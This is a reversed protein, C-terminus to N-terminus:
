ATNGPFTIPSIPQVPVQLPDWRCKSIIFSSNPFTFGNFKRGQRSGSGAERRGSGARRQAWGSRLVGSADATSPGAELRGAQGEM